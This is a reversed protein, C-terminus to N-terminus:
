SIADKKLEALMDEVSSFRSKGAQMMENSERMAEITESNPTAPRLDFPLGGIQRSTYLFINIAETVSLGYGGYIQELDAKVEPDIRLSMYGTKAM